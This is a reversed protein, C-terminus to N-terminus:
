KNTMFNMSLKVLNPHRFIPLAFHKSLDVRQVAQQIGLITM